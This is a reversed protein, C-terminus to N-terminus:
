KAELIKIKEELLEVKSILAQVAGYLAKNIQDANLDKCDEIAEEEQIIKYVADSLINGKEDYVAGTEVEKIEPKIVHRKVNVAKPFVSEVDQAIWGLMNRDPATKEDYYKWSYHKLPLNKVIDYCRNIDALVINEKIREDSVITWTNTTPKGASDTSLQLQYTPFLGIGLQGSQNLTMRETVSATNDPKTGFIIGGGFGNIGGSGLLTGHIWAIERKNYAPPTGNNLSYFSYGGVLDNIAPTARNNIAAFAGTTISTDTSKGAIGIFNIDSSGLGNDPFTTAIGVNSNAKDLYIVDDYVYALSTWATSGDGMKISRTDTEMGFEGAALTPNNSTWNAATDRRVKIQYNYTAM